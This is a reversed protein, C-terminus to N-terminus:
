FIEEGCFYVIFVVLEAIEGQYNLPKNREISGSIPLSNIKTQRRATLIPGQMDSKYMCKGGPDLLRKFPALSFTCFLALSKSECTPREKEFSPKSALLFSLETM